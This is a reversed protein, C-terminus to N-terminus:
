LRVWNDPCVIVEKGEKSWNKISPAVVKQSYYSIYASWWSFSSNAIIQGVCSAMDNMDEIESNHVFVCDKFIEQTKCWEIDDSFVAFKKNPFERMAREYYDTKMLDVYTPHNVADGRRVHIAVVDKKKPMGESFFTKIEDDSEKFWKPDLFWRDSLNHTKAYNYVFALQFMQNGLRGTINTLPIM